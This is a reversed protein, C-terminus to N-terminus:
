PKGLYSPLTSLKGKSRQLLTHGLPGFYYQWPGLSLLFPWRLAQHGNSEKRGERHELGEADLSHVAEQLLDLHCFKVSHLVQFLGREGGL